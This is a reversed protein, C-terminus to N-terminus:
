TVYARETVVYPSLVSRLSTRVVYTGEKTARLGARVCACTHLPVCVCARSHHLSFSIEGRWIMRGWLRHHYAVTPAQEQRSGSLLM